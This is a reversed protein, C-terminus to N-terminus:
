PVGLAVVSTNAMLNVGDPANLRDSVLSLEGRLARADLALFWEYLTQDAPNLALVRTGPAPWLGHTLWAAFAAFALGVLLDARRRRVAATMRRTVTAPRAARVQDPGSATRAASTVAEVM